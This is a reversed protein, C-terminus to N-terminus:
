GSANALQLLLTIDRDRAINRASPRAASASVAFRGASTEFLGAGLL